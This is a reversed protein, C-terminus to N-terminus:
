LSEAAYRVALTHLEGPQLTLANAAANASEVCLMGRWHASGIDAMEAGRQEGPSWVVTSSSGSKDIVIRRGLLPDVISCRAETDLYVRDTEGAIRLAGNQRAEAFGLTKDLYRAGALGLVEVQEVDGVTFYAHLAEGLKVPVEAANITTLEISVADGVEVYLELPTEHPWVLRTAEDARMRLTLQVRGDVCASDILEWPAVRAYGHLPLSTDSAHAGFWPWCVPVGGRIPRQAAHRARPSLWLLPASQAAPQFHTLQAGQLSLSARGDAAVIDAHLLGGPGSRFTLRDDIAFAQLQDLTQM